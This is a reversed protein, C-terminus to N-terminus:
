LNIGFVARVAEKLGGPLNKCLTELRRKAADVKNAPVGVYAALEARVTTGEKFAELVLGVEIDDAQDAAQSLRSFVEGAIRREDASEDPAAPGPNGYKLAGLSLADDDVEAMFTIPVRQQHRAQNGVINLIKVKLFAEVPVGRPCKEDALSLIAEHVVDAPDGSVGFRSLKKLAHRLLRPYLARIERSREDEDPVQGKSAHAM